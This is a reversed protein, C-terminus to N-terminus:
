GDEAHPLGDIQLQRALAEAGGDVAFWHSVYVSVLWRSCAEVDPVSRIGSAADMLEYIAREQTEVIAIAERLTMEGRRARLCVDRHEPRMPLSLRGTKLLEEGQLGLRIAHMAYKTDYGHASILGARAPKRRGGRTGDMRGKQQKLYGLFARGCSRAVVLDPLETVIAEAVAGWTTCQAPSVFLLQLVTPNGSLALRMWKRLDYVTTDTDGPGSREGEAATRHVLHEFKGLGIVHSKPAIALGMLDTDSPKDDVKLGYLDSGAKAMLVTNQAVIQEPKMM